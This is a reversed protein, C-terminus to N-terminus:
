MAPVLHDRESRSKKCTECCTPQSTRRRTMAGGEIKRSHSVLFQDAIEPDNESCSYISLIFLILILNKYFWNFKMIINHM